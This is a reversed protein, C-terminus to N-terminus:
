MRAREERYAVLREKIADNHAALIQAAFLGANTAGSGGIALTAVPVGRPMQVMSLLSDMGGLARTEIPVGLVPVFTLAAVCGPLAAAMGAGAIIVGLGREEATRAYEATEEPNRHASIVRVEHPIEMRELIDIAGQMTPADSASGMIIGVRAGM